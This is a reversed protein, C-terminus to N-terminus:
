RLRRTSVILPEQFRKAGGIRHDPGEILTQLSCVFRLLDRERRAHPFQERDEVRNQLM